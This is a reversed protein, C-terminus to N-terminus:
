STNLSDAAESAGIQRMTRGRGDHTTHACAGINEAHKGDGRHPGSLRQFAFALYMLQCSSPMIDTHTGPPTVSLPVTIERM